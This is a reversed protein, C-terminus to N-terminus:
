GGKRPLAPMVVAPAKSAGAGNGNREYYGSLVRRIHAEAQKKDKPAKCDELRYPPDVRVSNDVIISNNTWRTQFRTTM